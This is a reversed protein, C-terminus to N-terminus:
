ETCASEDELSRELFKLISICLVIINGTTSYPQSVHDRVNLSSHLSLTNSFLIRLRINPDLLFSLPSYLLSWFSSIWLKYRESLIIVTIPYLLNIHVPSATLISFPLVAKLIKVPLGIPFSVKPLGLCLRYPLILISRLSIPMLVFFQTWEVWSLEMIRRTGDDMANTLLNTPSLFNIAVLAM